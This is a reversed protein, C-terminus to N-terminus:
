KPEQVVGRKKDYAIRTVSIFVIVERTKAQAKLVPVTYKLTSSSILTLRFIADEGARDEM